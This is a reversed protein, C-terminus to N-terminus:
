QTEAVPLGSSERAGPSPSPTPAPTGSRRRIAAVSAMTWIPLSVLLAGASVLFVLRYSGFVSLVGSLVAGAVAAVGGLASALGLRTGAEHGEVARFLLMSSATSYFAIAGGMLAFAAVNLEFATGPSLAVFTFGAVALYGLSRVYTSRHVLRDAGLRSTLNGSAPFSFSQAFNNGLNVLFISAAGLGLSYLYPTYSINFLNSSLNFLFSAALILPLEHHVEERVWRSFRAIPAPGPRLRAPFFPLISHWDAGPRLRSLLSEPHHAAHETSLSRPSDKVAVWVMVVSASALLAMADLLLSLPHNTVLWFVGVLLGAMGGIISMEQFSAFASPRERGDFKELMLLNSASAGAPALIGVVTYLVFVIPLSTTVSLLAFILAFGIYNLLLLKRRTPYRDSIYGWFISALIVAGNFLSAALAVDVWAGHLSILILLPLAVGFGSTAANIPVFVLLWPRSLLGRPWTRVPKEM